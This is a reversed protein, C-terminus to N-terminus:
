ISTEITRDPRRSAVAVAVNDIAPVGLCELQEPRETVLRRTARTTLHLRRDVKGVPIVTCQGRRRGVTGLRRQHFLDVHPHARTVLTKARPSGVPRASIVPQNASASASGTSAIPNSSTASANGGGTNLAPRGTAHAGVTSSVTCMRPTGIGPGSRQANRDRKM